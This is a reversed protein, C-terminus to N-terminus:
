AAGRDAVEKRRVPMSKPAHVGLRAFGGRVEVLTIVIMPGVHFSGGPSLEHAADFRGGDDPGGVMTGRAIVRAGSEDIDTPTVVVDRGVVISEDVQRSFILM